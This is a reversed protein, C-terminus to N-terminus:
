FLLYIYIMLLTGKNGTKKKNKKLLHVFSYNWVNSSINGPTTPLPSRPASARRAPQSNWMCQHMYCVSRCLWHELRQKKLTKKESESRSLQGIILVGELLQTLNHLMDSQELMHACVISIFLVWFVFSLASLWRWKLVTQGPFLKVVPSM